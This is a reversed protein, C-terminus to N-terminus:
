VTLEQLVVVLVVLETEVQGLEPEQHLELQLLVVTQAVEALDGIVLVLLHRVGWKDQDLLDQLM